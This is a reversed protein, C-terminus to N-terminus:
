RIAVRRAETKTDIVVWPEDFGLDDVGTGLRARVFSSAGDCGILWRGRVRTVAGSRTDRVNVDVHDDVAACRGVCEYGYWTTIGVIEGLRQRLAQELEPQVFMYSPEWGSIASGPKSVNHLLLEGAANEFRYENVPSMNPLMRDLVGIQQLVRAIEHDLHVARPLPYVQPTANSSSCAIVANGLLAALVAGTPGAGVM